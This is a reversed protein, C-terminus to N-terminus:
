RAKNYAERSQRAEDTELKLTMRKLAAKDQLSYAQKMRARLREQAKMDAMKDKDLSNLAKYANTLKESKAKAALQRKHLADDAMMPGSQDSGGRAKAMAEERQRKNEYAHLDYFREHPLSATNYDEIFDKFYRMTDAKTKLKSADIKRHRIWADFEPRKNGLDSQTIIGHKGYNSQDMVHKSTSKNTTTTINIPSSSTSRKRKKGKRLDYLREREFRFTSAATLIEETSSSQLSM